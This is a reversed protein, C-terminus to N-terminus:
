QGSGAHCSMAQRTRTASNFPASGMFVFGLFYVNCKKNNDPFILFLFGPHPTAWAQVEEVPALSTLAFAAQIANSAVRSDVARRLQEPSIPGSESTYTTYEGTFPSVILPLGVRYATALEGRLSCSVWNDAATNMELAIVAM